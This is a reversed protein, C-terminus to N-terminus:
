ITVGCRRLWEVTYDSPKHKGNILNALTDAPFDYIRCFEAISVGKDIIADKIPSELEQVECELIKKAKEDSMNLANAIKRLTIRRISLKHNSIHSITSRDLGTQRAFESLSLGRKQLEERLM